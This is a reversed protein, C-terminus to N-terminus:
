QQIRVSDRLLGIHVTYGKDVRLEANLLADPVRWVIFYKHFTELWLEFVDSSRLQQAVICITPKDSPALSCIDRSTEVLPAILAENYICDCAILANIGEQRENFQLQSYLRSVSSTEWDLPLIDICSNARYKDDKKVNQSKNKSDSSAPRQHNTDLNDRLLRLVYEQDTAIYRQIRPAMALAVLGSM